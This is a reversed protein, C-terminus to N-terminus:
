SMVNDGRWSKRRQHDRMGSMEMNGKKIKDEENEIEKYVKRLQTNTKDALAGHVINYRKIMLLCAGLSRLDRAKKERTSLQKYSRKTDKM